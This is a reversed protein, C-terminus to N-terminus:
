RCEGKESSSIAMPWVSLTQEQSTNGPSFPYKWEPKSWRCFLFEPNSFITVARFKKAESNCSVYSIM